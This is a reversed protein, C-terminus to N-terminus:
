SLKLRSSKEQLTVNKKILMKTLLNGTPECILFISHAQHHDDNEKMNLEKWFPTDHSRGQQAAM